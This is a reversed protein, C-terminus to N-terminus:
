NPATWLRIGWLIVGIAGFIGLVKATMIANEAFNMKRPAYPDIESGASPSTANVNQNAKM